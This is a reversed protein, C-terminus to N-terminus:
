PDIAIVVAIASLHDLYDKSLQHVLAIQLQEISLNHGDLSSMYAILRDRVELFDLYTKGERYCYSVQLNM